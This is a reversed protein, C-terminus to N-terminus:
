PTVTMSNTYTSYSANTITTSGTGASVGKVWFSVSNGDAPVVASTIVASTAGGSVFQINANPNLTFTTAAVVPHIGQNFDRTYFTVQVSDGVRLSTPWGSIPDIRGLGVTVVGFDSLHGPPSATITDSGSSTGSIRFYEYSINAPITVSGPTNTRPVTSHSLPVTLPATTNNPVQVYMDAYQGIGLVLTNFSLNAQPTQVNVNFVGTGYKYFAARTDTASLQATGISGPSWRASSNSNANPIITVTASDISAVGPASSALTVYVSDNVEHQTGNADTAYVNIPTSSSTTNLTSTATIVFKPATVQMNVSTPGYGTATAQVQITGLTDQATITFYAYSSNAPITVTAPVTAVRPDTSILNVVLPTAVNNQTQVYYQSAYTHQRMGLRGPNGCCITLSPGTVTVLNTSDPRYGSGASDSYIIRATGAGVYRVTPQAYYADKLIRFFPQVPQIVNSDTSVARVVITDSAYHGTGNLTDAVYVTVTSPANTTTATGPLGSVYLKPTTVVVFGTDPLYGPASAIITDRGPILGGFTFYEYGQNAPLTLSTTSLAVVTPQKQTLTVSVAVNRTSPTQVYFSQAPQHQRAGIRYTTWSLNLKAANVTWNATDPRHGPATAIIKATGPSVATVNASTNPYYQGAPITLVSDVKLVTTDTSTLTVTLPTTRNHVSGVSDRSYASTTTTSYAVITTGGTLGIKPTTVITTATDPSYGPASAILTATGTTKGRMTYYVYNTNAPITVIAPVALITSDSSTLTVDVPQSVSNPIQVYYGSEEQGAGLRSTTYPFTIKPGVVTFLVSDAIHGGATAKIWATGAAGGPIIRASNNASSGAPITVLTDLVRAVTSDSSSLRVALSNTRTHISFLSDASYVSVTQASSTVNLNASCCIRSMPTTTVVTFTDPRWGSASAIINASGRNRGFTTFYVYSTGAPITVTPPTTAITSDTSTLTIVLPTFLNNPVQVYTNGNDNQGAGLRTLTTSLTLTPASVFVTASQGTVGTASPTITTNGATLGRIVVDAALQGAPIFAPDPSIQARGATGYTFTVYTGGAPSPDSLLVQTSLQDNANLSYSTTTMRLNAQVAVVATDGAYGTGSGDLATIRTTGANRGNLTANTSTQGAPITVSATSWFAFTDAVALNVTVNAANPKSLLIPVSLATGRGVGITDRGFSIISPGSNNVSVVATNSTIAGSTATINTSGNAVGTVVGTSANVTAVSPTSSAYTFSGGSIYRNNADKGRALMPTTGAVAVTTTAPTLEISALVQSVNLTASGTVGQASAQISTIGNAAALARAKTPTSSDIVAVSANTSSWTFTIGSMPNLLTDRALARYMRQEGLSTMTFNDPAPANTSDFSVDIRTIPTLVSLNSVGVTSGSTARIQASGIALGTAFGTSANVSAVSPASSSWTFTPQTTMPVGRGDVAQATFTFNGSTYISRSSPNVNVGAIRQQVVILASDKTGGTETAVIYTSGDAVTTVLGNTNVTAAAPNRSVWTWTGGVLNNSADRGQATIQRTDTFSTLTDLHPSVTTTALPGPGSGGTANVTIPSGTLGTSAVQLTQTGAAGLTWQTSALGSANSSMSAPTVSGGGSTPNFTVQVGAVGNGFADAVKAVIPQALATGFNATQNNGSVLTIASAAAPNVAFSSSTGALAGTSNVDLTYIAGSQNIRANSFTAVGNAATVSATGAVTAGGSPATVSLTATGNFTTVVANSADRLEAVIPPTMTVGATQTSGPQQTFTWHTQSSTATASVALTTVGTSAVGITQTGSSPGLTWTTTARGSADTNVSTPTVSGGGSTVAFDIPVNVKANGSADTLAVTIPSLVSGAAATQGGGTVLVMNTAPGAIINFAPSSAGALGTATAALVYGTGPMGITVNGFTAVGGVAAVTTTGGLTAGSPSTAFSLTVNGTYSSVPDNDVDRAAVVFVMTSGAAINAGAAPSTTIALKTASSVTGTASFTVPSGTLSGSSATVTQTGAVNGLTWSTQALGNADTTASAPNVSGGGSGVAFAVSVGAVPLGDTARVRVVLPQPLTTSTPKGVIATQGTGSVSAIASPVPQVDLTVTDAKGTILAAVIRATGRLSLANGSGATPSTITARTPDLSSWLIPTNPVPTGTADNAVASFSFAGGASVTLSRPSIRVATAAAGAGTYVVPISIPPPPAQGPLTPIATIQAPGGRFVVENAANLYGLDLTMVEGSTPAGALLRVNLDLSIEDVGPPFVITTDLAITGDSHHLVVHVRDFAVFDAVGAQQLLSPFVANFRLGSAYRIAPERPATPENVCSLLVILVVFLAASGLAVRRM